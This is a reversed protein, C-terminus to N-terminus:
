DWTLTKRLESDVRYFLERPCALVETSGYGDPLHGLLNFRSVRDVLAVIASANRTGIILDGEFHGFEIRCAAIEPLDHLLTFRGLPSVRGPIKAGRSRSRSRPRRRRRGRRHLHEHMGTALGAVGNAYVARYITEASM